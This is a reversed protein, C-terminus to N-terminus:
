RVVLTPFLSVHPESIPQCRIFLERKIFGDKNLGKGQTARSRDGGGWV